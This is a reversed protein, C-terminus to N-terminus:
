SFHDDYWTILIVAICIVIALSGIIVTFTDM